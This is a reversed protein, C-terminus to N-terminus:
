FMKKELWKSPKKPALLKVIRLEFVSFFFFIYIYVCISVYIVYIYM